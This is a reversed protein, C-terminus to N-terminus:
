DNYCKVRLPVAGKPLGGSMPKPDFGTFRGNVMSGEKGLSKMSFTKPATEGRGGIKILHEKNVNQTIMASPKGQAARGTLRIQVSGMQNDKVVEYTYGKEGFQAGIKRQNQNFAVRQGASASEGTTFRGKEDHNENM